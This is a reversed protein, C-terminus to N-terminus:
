VCCGVNSDGGKSNRDAPQRGVPRKFVFPVGKPKRAPLGADLGPGLRLSRPCPYGWRGRFDPYVPLYPPAFYHSNHLPIHPFSTHVAQM